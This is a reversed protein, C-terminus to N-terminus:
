LGLQLDVELSSRPSLPSILATLMPTIGLLRFGLGKKCSFGSGQVRFGSGQVRFRWTPNICTGQVELYEAAELEAKLAERDESSRQELSASVVGPTKPSNISVRFGLVGFGLGWVKFRM